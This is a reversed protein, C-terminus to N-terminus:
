PSRRHLQRRLPKTKAASISATKPFRAAANNEVPFASKLIDGSGDCILAVHKSKAYDFAVCLVKRASGAREFVALVLVNQNRYVSSSRSSTKM